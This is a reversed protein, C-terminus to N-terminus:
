KIDVECDLEKTFKGACINGALKSLKQQSEEIPAAADEQYHKLEKLAANLRMMLSDIQADKLALKQADTTKIVKKAPPEAPKPAGSQAFCLTGLLAAMLIRLLM